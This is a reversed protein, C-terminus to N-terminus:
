EKQACIMRAKDNIDLRIRVDAYSMERLMRATEEAFNEHIEFYLKGGSRLLKQASKAIARYFILPDHDPVFLALHPEHKTVNDRMIAIESQPIYPPNSIIVDFEGDVVREVGALADGKLIQVTPSLLLINKSAIAIAEDSIDIATVESPSLARSLAIALAGSGTGVDLIRRGSGQESVVCRILEESEPRPILVGERVTLRFDCFEAEGIIYQVPRNESIERELQELDIDSVECEAEPDSALMQWSIGEREEMIMRAIQRAENTGYIPEASAILRNYLERRRM